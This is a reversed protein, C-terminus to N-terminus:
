NRVRKSENKGEMHNNCFWEDPNNANKMQRKCEKSYAKLFTDKIKEKDKKKNDFVIRKIADCGKENCELVLEEYDGKDITKM